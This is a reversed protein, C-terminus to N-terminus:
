VVSKRDAEVALSTLSGVTVVPGLSDESSYLLLNPSGAGGNVVVGPTARDVLTAHVLAPLAETNQELFQAVAGAVHPAAMSTGSMVATAIDSSLGASRISVGPAFLDLLPGTNSFSARTDSSSTAGVTLAETVRAPSKTSADANDNGAAVVFTLGSAIANRVADDMATNVSGGLSMNVVAPRHTVDAAIADVAAIVGAWTGTGTCDLARYSWLTVNKAVGYTQGGITGAVHTGHGNCDAGDPEGPNGDDDGIDDPDDDRDDDVYDGGIFARGGFETHTIRIGTDVVYAHVGAGVASYRYETDLPLLRQDVRDLGWPADSQVVTQTTVIGDEEVYAVRPDAALARAAAEPLEIAFGRLADRYVHQLRGRRLLATEIGVALPDDAGRLVAIYRGAVPRGARRIEPEQQANVRAGTTVALGLLAIVIMRRMVSHM